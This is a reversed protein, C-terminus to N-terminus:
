LVAGIEIIAQSKAYGLWPTLRPALYLVVTMDSIVNTGIAIDFRLMNLMILNKNHGALSVKM